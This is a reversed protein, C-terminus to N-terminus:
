LRLSAIIAELRSCLHAPNKVLLYSLNDLNLLMFFLILLAGKELFFFLSLLAGLDSHGPSELLVNKTSCIPTIAQLPTASPLSM